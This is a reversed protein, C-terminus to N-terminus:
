VVSKRDAEEEGVNRRHELPDLFLDTSSTIDAVQHQVQGGRAVDIEGGDLRELAQVDVQSLAADFHVERFHPPRDHVPQLLGAKWVVKGVLREEAQM